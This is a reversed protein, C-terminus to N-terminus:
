KEVEKTLNATTQRKRKDIQELIIISEKRIYELRKIPNLIIKSKLIIDNIKLKTETLELISTDLKWYNKGIPTEKIKMTLKIPWHDSLPKPVDKDIRYNNNLREINEFFPSLSQSIYFRDLRAV